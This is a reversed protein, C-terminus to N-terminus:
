CRAATERGATDQESACSAQTYRQRPATLTDGFTSPFSCLVADVALGGLRSLGSVQALM